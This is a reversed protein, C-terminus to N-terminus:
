RKTPSHDVRQRRLKQVTQMPSQSQVARSAASQKPPFRETSQEETPMSEAVGAVAPESRSKEYGARYITNIQVARPTSSQEDQAVVSSKDDTFAGVREPSLDEGQRPALLATQTPSPLPDVSSSATRSGSGPASSRLSSREEDKYSANVSLPRAHETEAGVLGSPLRLQVELSELAAQLQLRQSHERQLVHQLEQIRQLLMAERATSPEAWDDDEKTLLEVVRSTLRAMTSGPPSDGTSNPSTAVGKSASSTPDVSRNLVKEDKNDSSFAVGAAPAGPNLQLAGPAAGYKELLKVTEYFRTNQKLQELLEAKAERYRSLREEASEIRWRYWLAAIRYLFIYAATSTAVVVTAKLRSDAYAGLFLLDHFTFAYATWISVFFFAYLRFAALTREKRRKRIDLQRSQSAIRKELQELRRGEPPERASGSSRWWWDLFGM